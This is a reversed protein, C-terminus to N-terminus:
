SVLKTDQSVHLIDQSVPMTDQSVHLIDQSLSIIFVEHSESPSKTLLKSLEIGEVLETEDDKEGDMEDDKEGDKSEPNTKFLFLNGDLLNLTWVGGLKRPSATADGESTKGDKLVTNCLHYFPSGLSGSRFLSFPPPTPSFPPLSPLRTFKRINQTPLFSFVKM